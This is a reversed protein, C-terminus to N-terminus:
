KVEDAKVEIITQERLANASLKGTKLADVQAMSLNNLAETLSAIAGDDKTTIGLELQKVEPQKLHSMLSNAADSRVKPSVDDDMMIEVQTKVALSFVDQFLIHTPVIMKSMVATVAQQKAYISAYSALTKNSIGDRSMREVRDPFTNIYSRVNDYGAMKFLCFRIANTYDEFSINRVGKLVDVYSFVNKKFADGMVYDLNGLANNIVEVCQNATKENVKVPYLKRFTEVDLRSVEPKAYLETLNVPEDLKNYDIPSGISVRKSHALEGSAGDKVKKFKLEKTMCYYGQLITFGTYYGCM